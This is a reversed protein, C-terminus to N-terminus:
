RKVFPPSSSIFLHVVANMQLAAALRSFGDEEFLNVGVFGDLSDPVECNELRVPILYIDDELKEEWLDLANKLEKQVFGRKKVSVESLCAVFFDAERIAKKTALKWQQGPLLDQSKMWPTFGVKALPHYLQREVRELDADACCLFIHSGATTRTSEITEPPMHPEDQEIRPLIANYLPEFNLGTLPQININRLFDLLGAIHQRIETYLNLDDQIGQLNALNKTNHLLKQLNEIKEDWYIAYKLMEEAEDLRIGEVAVPFIRDYVDEHKSLLLLEWMCRKSQFYGKSLVVIVYQGQGLRTVYEDFRGKYGIESTDSLITIGKDRFFRSLEQAVTLGEDEGCYSVFIEPTRQRAPMGAQRQAQQPPETTGSVQAPKQENAHLVDTRVTELERHLMDNPDYRNRLAELFLPLVVRGDQLQQSRLFDLCRDVRDSKSAAEPLRDQFPALEETVFIAKLAAHSDFEGCKLLISRCRTYIDSALRLM